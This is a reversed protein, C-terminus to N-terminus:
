INGIVHLKKRARTMAVYLLRAQQDESMYSNFDNLDLFVQDYTSGQSKHVTCAYQPRFDVWKKTMMERERIPVEPSELLAHHLYDDPIFLKNEGQVDVFTGSIGVKDAQITVSYHGRVARYIPVTQDTKISRSMGKFHKNNVVVDGAIFDARKKLSNFVFDNVEVVRENKFSIFKASGDKFAQVLNDSFLDDQDEGYHIFSVGDPEFQDTLEGTSVYKKLSDGIQKLLSTEQRVQETLHVTTANLKAVPIGKEKVPNLQCLDGVFVVKSSPALRKLLHDLVATNLYSYEDVILLKNEIPEKSTFVEGKQSVQIKLFSHLTKVSQGTSQALAEVAKNTTATLVVDLPPLQLLKRATNHVKDNQSTIAKILTSKGTGASGDIILVQEDEQIVLCSVAHLANQQDLTYQM